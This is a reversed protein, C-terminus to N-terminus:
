ADDGHAGNRASAEPSATPLLQSGVALICFVTMMGYHHSHSLMAACVVLTGWWFGRWWESM